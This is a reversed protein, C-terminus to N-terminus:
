VQINALDGTAHPLRKSVVSWNNGLGIHSSGTDVMSDSPLSLGDGTEYASDGSSEHQLHPPPAADNAKLQPWESREAM